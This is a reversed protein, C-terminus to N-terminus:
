LAGENTLSMVNAVIGDNSVICEWRAKNPGVGVIVQSNAESYVMELIVTAKNKTVHAVERLCAKRAVKPVSEDMLPAPAAAQNVTCIGNAGKKGTYSVTATGDPNTSVSITVGGHQAEYYDANFVKLKAEKGNIYVPGGQDAHVELNQPCTANLQHIKAEATAMSALFSAAAVLM